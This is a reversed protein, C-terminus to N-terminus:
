KIIEKIHKIQAIVGLLEDTKSIIKLEKLTDMAMKVWEEAAELEDIANAITTENMKNDDKNM